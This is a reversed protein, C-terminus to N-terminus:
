YDVYGCDDCIDHHLFKKVRNEGCFLVQYCDQVLGDIRSPQGDRDIYYILKNKPYVIHCWACDAKCIPDVLKTACQDSCFATNMYSKEIINLGILAMM